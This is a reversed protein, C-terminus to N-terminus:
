FHRSVKMFRCLTGSWPLSAGQRALMGARLAASLLPALLLLSAGVKKPTFATTDGARWTRGSGMRAAM